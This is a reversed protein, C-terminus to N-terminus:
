MFLMNKNEYNNEKENLSQFHQNELYQHYKRHDNGQFPMKYMQWNGFFSPLM